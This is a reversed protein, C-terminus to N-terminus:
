WITPRTSIRGNAIRVELRRVRGQEDRTHWSLIRQGEVGTGTSALHPAGLTKVIEAEEVGVVQEADWLAALAWAIEQTPQPQPDPPNPRPQPDPQVWPDPPVPPAPEVRCGALALLVLALAALHKV